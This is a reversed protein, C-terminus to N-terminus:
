LTNLKGQDKRLKKKFRNPRTIAFRNSFKIQILQTKLSNKKEFADCADLVILPLGGSVIDMVYWPVESMYVYSGAELVYAGHIALSDAVENCNRNCLSVTGCSFESQIM